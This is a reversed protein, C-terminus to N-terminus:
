QVSTGRVRCCIFVHALLATLDNGTHRTHVTSVVVSGHRHCLWTTEQDREKKTHPTFSQEKLEDKRLSERNTSRGRNQLGCVCWGKQHM